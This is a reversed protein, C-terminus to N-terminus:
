KLKQIKFQIWVRKMKSNQKRNEVTKRAYVNQIIKYHSEVDIDETSNENDNCSENKNKNKNKLSLQIAKVFISKIEKTEFFYSRTGDNRVYFNNKLQSGKKFRLQAMDYIGYDRIFIYGNVNLIDWIKSVLSVYHSPNISSLVFLMLGYDIGHKTIENPFKDNVIDCEFAKVKSEDYNENKKSKKKINQQLTHPFDNCVNKHSLQLNLM